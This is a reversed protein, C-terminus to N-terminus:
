SVVRVRPCGTRGEAAAHIRRRLAADPEWSGGRAMFRSSAEVIAEAPAPGGIKEALMADLRAVQQANLRQVDLVGAADFDLMAFGMHRVGLVVGGALEVTVGAMRVRQGAFDIARCSAAERMMRTFARGALRHLSDDSSLLFIRSAWGM